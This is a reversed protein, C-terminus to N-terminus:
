IVGRMVGSSTPVRPAREQARSLWGNIFRELQKKRNKPNSVLWAAARRIEAEVDIAPYADKWVMLQGNINQFSSGDFVIKEHSVPYTETETETETEPADDRYRESIVAIDDCEVWHSLKTLSQKVKAETTRLRFALKRTDPLTGNKTEDESAILWLMVLVKSYEPELDHWDPDDLLDKYLKVWPPSRDKFHQFKAWAKIRYSAM